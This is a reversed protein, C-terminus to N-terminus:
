HNLDIVPYTTTRFVDGAHIVNSGTFHVISDGDTHAPHMKIIQIEEGNYHFTLKRDYTIHPLASDPAGRGLEGTQRNVTRHKLRDRVLDHAIIKVGMAALNENGGVHDGHLHTNVVFEIPKGSIGRIASVVKETLTSFQDDVMFVGDEGVCVGINGGRGELMHVSGAIHKTKINVQNAGNNQANTHVSFILLLFTSYIFKM